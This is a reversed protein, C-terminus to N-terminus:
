QTVVQIRKTHLRILVRNPDGYAFVRDTGSLPLLEFIETQGEEGALEIQDGREPTVRVGGLVLDSALVTFDREQADVAIGSNTLLNMNVRGAIADIQATQEGRRYVIEVGGTRRQSRFLVRASHANLNM